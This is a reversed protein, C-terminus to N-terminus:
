EVASKPQEVPQDCVMQDLVRARAVTLGPLDPPVQTEFLAITQGRAVLETFAALAADSHDAVAAFAAVQPPYRKALGTGIAFHAQHSNLAHWGPNDLLSLHEPAKNSPM